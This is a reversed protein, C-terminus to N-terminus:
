PSAKTATIPFSAAQVRLMLDLESGIARLAGMAALEQRGPVVFDDLGEASVALEHRGGILKERRQLARYPAALGGADVDEHWANRRGDHSQVCLQSNAAEFRPGSGAYLSADTRDANRENDPRRCALVSIINRGVGDM